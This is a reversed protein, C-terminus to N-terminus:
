KSQVAGIDTKGDKVFPNGNIDTGFKELLAKVDSTFKPSEYSNYPFTGVTGAGIAAGKPMYNEGLFDSLKNYKFPANKDQLVADAVM